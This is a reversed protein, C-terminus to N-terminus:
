ASAEPSGSKSTTEIHIRFSRTVVVAMCLYFSLLHRVALHSNGATFSPMAFLWM